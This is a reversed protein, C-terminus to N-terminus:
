FNDKSLHEIGVLCTMYALFRDRAKFRYPILDFNYRSVYPLNTVAGRLVLLLGLDQGLGMVSTNLMKLYSIM